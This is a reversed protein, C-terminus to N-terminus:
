AYEKGESEHCGSCNPPPLKSPHVLDKIGEHCDICDLKAHVSKNFANTPFLLPIIQDGVKRTTTPDLHCDLCDTNSFKGAAPSSTTLGLFLLVVFVIGVSRKDRTRGIEITGM